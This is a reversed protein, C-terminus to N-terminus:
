CESRAGHGQGPAPEGARALDRHRLARGNRLLHPQAAARLPAGQEGRACTTPCWCRRCAGMATFCRVHSGIWCGLQQSASAEAFTYNSAGLVAVFLEAPWSPAGPPYIPITQGANRLRHVARGRSPPAPADGSRGARVLPSVARPVPQVPLRRPPGAQVGDVAAAADRGQPAAGPAGLRFGPAARPATSPPQPPFL